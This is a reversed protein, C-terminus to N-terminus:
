WRSGPHAQAWHPDLGAELLDEQCQVATGTRIACGDADPGYITGTHVADTEQRYGEVEIVTIVM